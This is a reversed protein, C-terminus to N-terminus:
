PRHCALLPPKFLLKIPPSNSAMWPSKNDDVHPSNITIHLIVRPYDTLLRARRVRKHPSGVFWTKGARFLRLASLPLIERTSLDAMCWSIDCNSLVWSTCMYVAFGLAQSQPFGCLIMLWRLAEVVMLVGFSKGRAMTTPAWNPTVGFPAEDHDNFHSTM